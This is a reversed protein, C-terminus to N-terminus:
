GSRGSPSPAPPGCPTTTACCWCKAARPPAGKPHPTGAYMLELMEGHPGGDHRRVQDPPGLRRHTWQEVAALGQNLLEKDHSHTELEVLTRLDDTIEPLAARALSEIRRPSM